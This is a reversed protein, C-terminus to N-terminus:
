VIQGISYLNEIADKIKTDLVDNRQIIRNGILSYLIQEYEQLTFEADKLEDFCRAKIFDIDFIHYDVKGGHRDFSHFKLIKEDTLNEKKLERWMACWSKFNNPLATDM